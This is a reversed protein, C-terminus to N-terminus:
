DDFFCTLVTRSNQGQGFGGVPTACHFYGADFIACRNEQMQVMDMVQWKDQDNQDRVVPKLYDPDGPSYMIGTQVHKLFATGGNDNNLYLMASYKGMSIDTHAVHPVSVGEPSKRMFMKYRSVNGFVHKLRSILEREINRPLEKCIQPYVVGDVENVEDKFDAILSYEKLEDYFSLFNDFVFYKM